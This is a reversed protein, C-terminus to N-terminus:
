CKRSGGRPNERDRYRWGERLGRHRLEPHAREVYDVEYRGRRRVIRASAKAPRTRYGSRSSVIGISAGNVIPNVIWTENQRWIMIPEDAIGIRRELFIAKKNLQCLRQGLSRM